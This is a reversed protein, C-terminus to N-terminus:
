PELEPGRDRQQERRERLRKLREDPSLPQRKPKPKIQTAPKSQRQSEPQRSKEKLAELREFSTEARPKPAEGRKMLRYNATDSHLDLLTQAHRSRTAAIETQLNQREQIQSAIVTHRQERDRQLAWLAEM